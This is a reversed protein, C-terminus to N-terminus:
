YFYRGRKTAVIIVTVFSVHVDANFSHLVLYSEKWKFKIIVYNAGKRNSVHNYIAFFASASACSNFLKLPLSCLCFNGLSVLRGLTGDELEMVEVGEVEKVEWEEREGEGEEELLKRFFRSLREAM